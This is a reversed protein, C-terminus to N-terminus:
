MKVVKGVTRGGDGVVQLFYVGAAVGELRAELGAGAKFEGLLVGNASFLLV